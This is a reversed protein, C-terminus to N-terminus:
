FAILNGWYLCLILIPRLTRKKPESESWRRYFDMRIIVRDVFFIVKGDDSQGGRHVKCGDNCGDAQRNPCSSNM